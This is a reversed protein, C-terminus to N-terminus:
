GVQQGYRGNNKEVRDGSGAVRFMGQQQFHERQGEINGVGEDDNEAKLGVNGYAPGGFM